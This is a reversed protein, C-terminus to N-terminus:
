LGGSQAMLGEAKPRQFISSPIHAACKGETAEGRPRKGHEQLEDGLSGASCSAITRQRLLACPHDHCLPRRDAPGVKIGFLRAASGRAPQPRDKEFQAVLRNNEAIIANTSTSAVTRPRDHTPGSACRAQHQRIRTDQASRPIGKGAHLTRFDADFTFTPVTGPPATGCWSRVASPRGRGLPRVDAERKSKKVGIFADTVGYAMASTM